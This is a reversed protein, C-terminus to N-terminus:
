KKIESDTGASIHFLTGPPVAHDVVPENKWSPRLEDLPAIDTDSGLVPEEGERYKGRRDPL